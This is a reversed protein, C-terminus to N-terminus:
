RSGKRLEEEALKGLIDLGGHDEEDVGHHRSAGCGMEVDIGVNGQSESRRDQILDLKPHGDVAIAESQTDNELLMKGTSELIDYLWEANRLFETKSMGMISSIDGGSDRGVMDDQSIENEDTDLTGGRGSQFLITSLRSQHPGKRDLSYPLYPSRVEEEEGGRREQTHGPSSFSRRMLSPVSNRRKRKEDVQSMIAAIRSQLGVNNTHDSNGNLDATYNDHKDGHFPNAHSPSVPTSHIGQKRGTQPPPTHSSPPVISLNLTPFPQPQPQSLSSSSRHHAVPQYSMTRGHGRGRQGHGGMVGLGPGVFSESGSSARVHQAGAVSRSNGDVWFRRRNQGPGQGVGVAPSIERQDGVNMNGGMGLMLGEYQEDEQGEEEDEEPTPSRRKVPFLLPLPRDTGRSRKWLACANCLTGRWQPTDVESCNTCQREGTSTYSPFRSGQNTSSTSSKKSHSHSKRSRTKSKANQNKGQIQAQAQAHPLPIPNTNTHSPSLAVLPPSTPSVLIPSTSRHTETQSSISQNPIHHSPPLHNARTTM